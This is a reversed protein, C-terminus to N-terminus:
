ARRRGVGIGVTFRGCAMLLRGMIENPLKGILWMPLPTGWNFVNLTPYGIAHLEHSAAEYYGEGHSIRQIENLYLYVDGPGSRKRTASDDALPSLSIGVFSVM